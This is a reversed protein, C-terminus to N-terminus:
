INYLEGERALEVPGRFCQRAQEKLMELDYEPWFHTLVLKKVGARNATEGAQGATLHGVKTYEIDENTLSAECLLLDAGRSFAVLEESIATDASYVFKKPGQACVAYTPIPHGTEMFNFELSGIYLSPKKDKLSLQSYTQVAFEDKYRALKGFSDLPKEPIFVPLPMKRSGDRLSGRIAHALCFLDLHHDAHLHTIIVADLRRFDFHLQLKSM